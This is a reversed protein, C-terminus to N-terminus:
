ERDETPPTSHDSLFRQAANLLASIIPILVYTFQGFNLQTVRALLFAILAGLGAIVAGKLTKWWDESNWDFQKSGNM